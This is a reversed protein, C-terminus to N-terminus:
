LPIVVTRAIRDPLSLRPELIACVAGALLILLATLGVIGNVVGGTAGATNRIVIVAVAALVPSWAVVSRLTAHLRSVPAGDRTAITAGLLRLAGPGRLIAALAIAIIAVFATLVAVFTPVTVVAEWLPSLRQAGRRDIEAVVDAVAAASQAREDPTAMLAATRAREADLRRGPNLRLLNWTMADAIAGGYRDGIYISLAHHLRRADVAAADNGRLGQMSAGAELRGLRGLLRNLADVTPNQRIRYAQVISLAAGFTFLLMAANGLAIAGLRRGRSVGTLSLMAPHLSARLEDFTTFAQRRLKAIFARASMPLAVRTDATGDAALAFSAVAALFSEATVVDAVVIADATPGRDATAPFDLVRIGGSRTIWLHNLTLPSPATGDAIAAALESALDSLWQRVARWSQHAPLPGGDPAEYVDYSDAHKRVSALVRLRTGRDVNQRAASLPLTRDPVRHIWVARKLAEDRAVLVEERTGSWLRRIVAYGGVLEGTTSHADQPDVVIKAAPLESVVARVVHTGSVRDHIARFGNAKRATMWLVAWCVLVVPLMRTVMWMPSAADGGSQQMVQRVVTPPLTMAAMTAVRVLARTFGAPVNSENVVRLGCVRKGVSAGWRGELASFYLLQSVLDVAETATTPWPTSSTFYQAAMSVPSLAVLDILYAVFRLSLPAADLTKSSLPILADRLDAYTAFRAEPAKALCRLVAQALPEPIDPRHTRPSAADQKLVAAFMQMVNAAEFPARGTLLFYLTAGVSYIDSRVDVDGGSVQEPSAYAPTGMFTGFMTLQTQNSAALTSMSLGYDGIKVAGSTDVFCNSPKIDRHLVGVAAAAELGAAVQLIVDVARAPALPGHEDILEQLTGGPVLEMAIMPTRDVAHSGFVYVSNPHSVSAALRGERLFRATVEPSDLSRALVKLAVRRGTDIQEAEYVEGMGGQGLRRRIRFPGVESGPKFSERPPGEDLSPQTGMTLLNGGGFRTVAEDGTM